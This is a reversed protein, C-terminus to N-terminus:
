SLLFGEPSPVHKGLQIDSKLRIYNVIPKRNKERDAGRMFIYYRIIGKEV